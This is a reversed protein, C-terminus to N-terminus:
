TRPNQAIKSIGFDRSKVTFSWLIKLCSFAGRIAEYQLCYSAIYTITPSLPQTTESALTKTAFVTDHTATSGCKGSKWYHLLLLGM